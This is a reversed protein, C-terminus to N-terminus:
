LTFWSVCPSPTLPGLSGESNLMDELSELIEYDAENYHPDGGDNEQDILGQTARHLIERQREDIVITYTTKDDTALTIPM